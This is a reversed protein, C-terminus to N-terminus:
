PEIRTKTESIKFCDGYVTTPGCSYLEPLGFWVQDVNGLAATDRNQGSCVLNDDVWLEALGDNPDGVWHLEVCYWQNLSPISTSYATVWGTGDRFILNWMIIGGTRRWGAYAVNKGDARFRLFYFRDGNSIIGSSSVYFYGRAYLESTSGVSAYSYASERISDGNSTFLGSYSGHHSLSSVVTRIEGSSTSTGTWASFSGSEFGDEFIFSSPPPPPPPSGGTQLLIVTYSDLTLTDTSSISGTQLEPNEWPISEDIKFYSLFGNLGTFKIDVKERVKNILLLNLKDEHIWALSRINSSSSTSEVVPDGVKLNPGIMWHVYYPYWPKNNDTNIIGRGVIGTGHKESHYSASSHYRQYINYSLGILIGKRLVLATWVAGVMTPTNPDAGNRWATNTNSEGNIVLPTKGRANHYIRKADEVGYRYDDTEFCWNEARTFLWQHSYNNNQGADYKHFNLFDLDAGDHSLWYDLVHRKTPCDFGIQINPNVTRMEASTPNFVNMYNQIEWNESLQAYIWPENIIEYFRVPIGKEKFHRVWEACYAAWSEPYPLNTITNIAMGNPLENAMNKRVGLTVFPEAGLEFIKNVLLDVDEWNWTGIRTNENWQSCPETYHSWIRILALNAETTYRNLQPDNTYEEWGSDVNLGISLKNNYIM